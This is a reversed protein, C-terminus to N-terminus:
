SLLEIIEAGYYFLAGDKMKRNIRIIANFSSIQNQQSPLHAVAQDGLQLEETMEICMGTGSLDICVGELARDSLTLSLPSDMKMRIFNRKEEYANSLNM